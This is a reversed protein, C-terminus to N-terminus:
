ATLVVKRRYPAIWGMALPNERVRISGWQGFGAVGFPAERIKYIEEAVTFAASKVPGPVAAWGWKATVRVNAARTASFGKAAVARVRWWPFGELGDVIGNLPELQYDTTSWASWDAGSGSTDHEIILGTITYFDHVEVLDCTDPYFLRASATSTLNFQRRCVVDIGRSATARAFDLRADDQTDTLEIGLFVKLEDKTIYSDGLAM